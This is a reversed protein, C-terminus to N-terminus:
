GPPDRHARRSEPADASHLLAVLPIAAALALGVFTLIVEIVEMWAGHAAATRERTQRGPRKPRGGPSRPRDCETM